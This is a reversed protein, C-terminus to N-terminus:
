EFTPQRSAQLLRHDPDLTTLIRGLAANLADLDGPQLPDFVLERVATVHGPASAVVKDFGESTLTAVTTRGDTPLPSRRIWGYKELRSVVHSLRSASANTIEALASMAMSRGPAESLMALTQYEIHTLGADRTLQQELAGPLLMTVAVLRLWTAQEAQDLWRTEDM